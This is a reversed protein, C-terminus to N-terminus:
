NNISIRASGFFAVLRQLLRPNYIASHSVHVDLVKEGLVPGDKRRNGALKELLGM